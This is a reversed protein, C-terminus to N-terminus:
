LCELVELPDLLLITRSQLALFGPGLGENHSTKQKEYNYEKMPM